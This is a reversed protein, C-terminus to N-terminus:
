CGVKTQLSGSVIAGAQNSWGSRTRSFGSKGELTKKRLVVVAVAAVIM